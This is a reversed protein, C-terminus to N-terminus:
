QLHEIVVRLGSYELFRLQFVLDIAIPNLGVVIEPAVEGCPQEVGFM